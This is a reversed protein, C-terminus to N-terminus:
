HKLNVPFQLTKSLSGVQLKLSVGEASCDPLPLSLGLLSLIMELGTPGGMKWNGEQQHKWSEAPRGKPKM